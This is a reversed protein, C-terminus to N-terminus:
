QPTDEPLPAPPPLPLATIAGSAPGGPQPQGPITGGATTGPAVQHRLRPVTGPKPPPPTDFLPSTAPAAASPTTEPQPNVADATGIPSRILDKVPDGGKCDLLWVDYIPHELAHLGPSAAFMWGGFVHKYENNPTAEEVEVFTDTQPAETPPRTYCASPTVQLTGFQVTEGIAVDFTIIRGTIKDLGAFVATPNKIKDAHAPASALLALGLVLWAAASTSPHPLPETM